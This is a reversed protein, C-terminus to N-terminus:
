NIDREWKIIETKETFYITDNLPNWWSTSTDGEISQLTLFSTSLTNITFVYDDMILTDGNKIWDGAAIYGDEDIGIVTGDSYFILGLWFDDTETHTHTTVKQGNPYTTWYGGNFISNYEFCNWTGIISVTTPSNDEEEKKCTTFLLPLCLLILLLKKM